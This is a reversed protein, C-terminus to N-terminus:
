HNLVLHTATLMVQIIAAKYNSRSQDFTWKSKSVSLLGSDVLDKDFNESM